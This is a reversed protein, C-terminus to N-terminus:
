LYDLNRLYNIRFRKGRKTLTKVDEWIGKLDNPVTGKKDMKDMKNRGKCERATERLVRKAITSKVNRIKM